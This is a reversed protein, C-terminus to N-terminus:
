NSFRLEHVVGQNQRYEPAYRVIVRAVGPAWLTVPYETSNEPYLLSRGSFSYTLNPQQPFRIPATPQAMAAIATVLTGSTYSDDDRRIEEAKMQALLAAETHLAAESGARLTNPFLFLIAVVGAMLIALSVLVELLSFGRTRGLGNHTAIRMLTM